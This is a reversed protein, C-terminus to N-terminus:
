LVTFGADLLLSTFPIWSNRFVTDVWHFTLATNSMQLLNDALDNLTFTSGISILIMQINQYISQSQFSILSGTSWNLFCKFMNQSNQSTNMTMLLLHPLRGDTLFLVNLMIISKWKLEM